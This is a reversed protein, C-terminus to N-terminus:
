RLAELPRLRMASLAPLIGGILGMALTLVLGQALINSDVILKLVVTKGGGQGASVISTATWGNALLGLACGLLGGVLAILLSELLFSTLIQWNAYGLIRLVGIDKTRQAIAAFMTNMVGFVGGIAMVIAVLSIAYAFQKNNQSLSAFYETEVVAQLSAKKFDNTFYDKVKVATAADKTRLVLSTYMEKGFMGGVLSRKAWVESDFTSGSSKMVGVVLWQRSGLKFVDGTDMRKKRQVSPLNKSNPDRGLERAAGEGLVVEIMSAREASDGVGDGASAAAQVGADSFWNGGEHLQVGHVRASILPEDIGRVQLFRRKPGNAPANEIPQNLVIYTEKSCLSKGNERLVDPQNEIDGTDSFGLNSFAEDTVGASLLIVNGPQGSSDTLRNMGNVFALMVTLLAIVLTFALATMATTRWRVSLNRVNYRVPIKGVAFLIAIVCLGAALGILWSQSVGFM